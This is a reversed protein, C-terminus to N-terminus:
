GTQIKNLVSFYFLFRFPYNGDKKIKFLSPLFNLMLKIFFASISKSIIELTIKTKPRSVSCKIFSKKQIDQFRMFFHKGIKLSIKDRM